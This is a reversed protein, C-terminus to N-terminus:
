RLGALQLVRYGLWGALLVPVGLRLGLLAARGVGLRSRWVMTRHRRGTTALATRIAQAVQATPTDTGALGTRAIRARLGNGQPGVPFVRPTWRDDFAIVTSVWHEGKALAGDPVPTSLHQNLREALDPLHGPALLILKRAPQTARAQEVEWWLGEGQGLRLVILQSLEMLRLVTSQWDDLPLYFRAAGVLPLPEGPRGVAIVPGIAGLASAFQEERTHLNIEAGDDIRAAIRDDEFSRLYLVPRRGDALLTQAAGRAARVWTRRIVLYGVGASALGGCLLLFQREVPLRDAQRQVGFVAVVGAAFLVCGLGNAVVVPRRWSPRLPSFWSVLGVLEAVGARRRHRLWLAPGALLLAVAGCWLAGARSGDVQRGTGVNVLLHLAVYAASVAVVTIWRAFMRLRSSM